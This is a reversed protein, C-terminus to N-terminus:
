DGTWITVSHYPETFVEVDHYPETYLVVDNYTEISLLLSFLRAVHELLLGYEDEKLLRDGDEKLIYFPM